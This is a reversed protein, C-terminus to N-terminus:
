TNILKLNRRKIEEALLKVDEPTTFGDTVTYDKGLKNYKEKGFEHYTLIEFSVNDNTSAQQLLTFFEGFERANQEGCNFYHILPVRVLLPKGTKARRILNRKIIDIDAGLVEKTKEPSPSKFDAIMYDVTSFLEECETLSANTEICTNINNQQLDKILPLVVDKQCTVEGGTFTVGGGDILIMRASLAEKVISEPSLAEATETITMGEPNSCWPCKLNCGSLHYVLRNGPGDQSYNFGKQFIYLKKHDITNVM